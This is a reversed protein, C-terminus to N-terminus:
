ILIALLNLVLDMLTSVRVPFNDSISKAPEYLPVTVSFRPILSISPALILLDNSAKALQMLASPSLFLFPKKTGYLSEFNVLNSFSLKPPLQLVTIILLIEGAEECNSSVILLRFYALLALFILVLAIVLLSSTEIWILSYLFMM